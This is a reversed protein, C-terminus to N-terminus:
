RDCQRAGDCGERSGSHVAIDCLGIRDNATWVDNHDDEDLNSLAVHDVALAHGTEDEAGLDHFANLLQEQQEHLRPTEIRGVAEREDALDLGCVPEPDLVWPREAIHVFQDRAENGGILQLAKPEIM